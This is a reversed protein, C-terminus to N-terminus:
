KGGNLDKVDTKSGRTVSVANTKKKEDPKQLVRSVDHGWSGSLTEGVPTLSPTGSVDELSRLSLSLTGLRAALTLKEAMKPSVELTATKAAKVKTGAGLGREDIGLLRVNQMVTESISFRKREENEIVHTLIVDVRDGAFAFGAVGTQANVMVSMARMGPTLIAATTSRDTSDILSAKSVPAGKVIAHRVVKGVVTKSKFGQETIHDPRVAKDPWSVWIFDKLKTVAGINLTQKAVLIRPLQVEAVKQQAKQEVGKFFSQSMYIVFIITMLALILLLVARKNM